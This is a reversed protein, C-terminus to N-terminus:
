STKWGNTGQGAGIGRLSPAPDQLAARMRPLSSPYHEQLYAIVEERIQCRLDWAKSSDSATALIRLQVANDSAEVVQLNWYRKDWLACGAVIRGVVPRIENVPLTYDAWFHVQGMINASVRTWNQFPKTIFYSLPAVMRTDDWVHVVVYTLTIEEVRGWAGEVIVVDDLRIPQALALQFGAFLNTLTSQAALGAIISLLGASALLSAGFHRVENFVMLASGLTLIGLAVYLSKAIVKVQTHVARARLNDASTMDYKTLLLDRGSQISSSLFWAVAAVIMLSSAKAAVDNYAPPLGILPLALVVAAVPVIARLGKGLLPVLFEDMTSKTHAAWQELRLDIVRTLRVFLWVVVCFVGLDFLKAFMERGADVEAGPPLKVLLPALAFYAGFVWILLYLPRGVAEFVALHWAKTEPGKAEADQRINKKKRHILAAAIAHLALFALVFCAAAGFDAWTFPGIVKDDVVRGLVQELGQHLAGAVGLATTELSNMEKM